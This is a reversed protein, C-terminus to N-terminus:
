RQSDHCRAVREVNPLNDVPPLSLDDLVWGLAKFRDLIDAGDAGLAQEIAKRTYSLMPNKGLYFFKDSDPPAEGVFLTMIKDPRFRARTAEVLKMDHSM